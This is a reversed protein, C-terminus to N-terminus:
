CEIDTDFIDIPKGSVTGFLAFNQGQCIAACQDNTMTANNFYYASLSRSGTSDSVCGLYVGTGGAVTIKVTSSPLAAGADTSTAASGATATATPAVYNTYNLSWVSIKAAAGCFETSDGVCYYSCNREGIKPTTVPYASCYCEQNQDSNM